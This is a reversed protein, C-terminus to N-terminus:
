GRGVGEMAAGCAGCVVNQGIDPVTHVEPHNICEVTPCQVQRTPWDEPEVNDIWERPTSYQQAM